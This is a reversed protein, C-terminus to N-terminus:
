DCENLLNPLKYRPSVARGDTHSTVLPWCPHSLGLYHLFHPVYEYFAIKQLQLHYHYCQHRSPIQHLNRPVSECFASSAVNFSSQQLLTYAASLQKMLFSLIFHPLAFLEVCMQRLPLFITVFNGPTIPWALFAVVGSSAHFQRMVPSIESLM